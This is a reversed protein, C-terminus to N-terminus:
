ADARMYDSVRACEERVRQLDSDLTQWVGEPAESEIKQLLDSLRGAATNRAASKFRHAADRSQATDRAAVANALNELEGPMLEVFLDFMERIMGEDDSGLIEKFQELDIPPGDVDTPADARAPAAGQKAAGEKGPSFGQQSWRHLFSGCSRCAKAQRLPAFIRWDSAKPKV